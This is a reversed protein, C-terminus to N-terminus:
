RRVKRNKKELREVEREFKKKFLPTFKEMEVIEGYLVMQRTFELGIEYDEISNHKLFEKKEAEVLKDIIKSVDM